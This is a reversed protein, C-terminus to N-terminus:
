RYHTPGGTIPQYGLANVSSRTKAKYNNYFNSGGTYSGMPNEPTIGGPGYGKKWSGGGGVKKRKKGANHLIGALSSSVPTNGITGPLSTVVSPSSTGAPAPPQGGIKPAPQYGPQARSLPQGGGPSGIHPNSNRLNDLWEQTPNFPEREDHMGIESAALGIPPHDRKYDPNTHYNEGYKKVFGAHLERQKRSFERQEELQEPTWQSKWNPHAPPRLAAQGGAPAPPQYPQGPPM